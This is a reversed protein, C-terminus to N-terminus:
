FVMRKSTSSSTTRRKKLDSTFTTGDGLVSSFFGDNVPTTERESWVPTGGTASTYLSYTVGISGSSPYGDADFLRGQHALLMPVNGAHALGAIAALALASASVSKTLRKM